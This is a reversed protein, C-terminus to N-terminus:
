AVDPTDADHFSSASGAPGPPSTGVAPNPAVGPPTKTLASLPRDHADSSGYGAKRRTTCSIGHEGDEVGVGVAVADCVAVGDSVPEGDSDRM